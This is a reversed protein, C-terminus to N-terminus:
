GTALIRGTKMSLQLKVKNFKMQQNSYDRYQPM